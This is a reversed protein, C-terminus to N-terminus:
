VAGKPKRFAFKLMAGLCLVLFAIIGYATWLSSSQASAKDEYEARLSAEFTANQSNMEVIQQSLSNQAALSKEQVSVIRENSSQLEQAHQTKLQDIQGLHELKLNSIQTKLAAIESAFKIEQQKLQTAVDDNQSAKLSAIV